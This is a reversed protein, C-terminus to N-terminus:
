PNVLGKELLWNRSIEILKATLEPKRPHMHGEDLNIVTKPHPVLAQFELANAFPIRQDLKGNVVLFEGTLSQIHERPEVPRILSAAIKSTLPNVGPFRDKFNHHILYDYDVGGYCLATARVEVQHEQALHQVAPLALAGLSYGLLIIRNTDAWPQAKIWELAVCVQAPTKNITNRIHQFSTFYAGDEFYNPKFPYQYSILANNGHQPIYSLSKRGAELGGLVIVVPLRNLNISVPLSVTIRTTDRDEAVIDVETYIRSGGHGNVTDSAQHFTSLGSYRQDIETLPDKAVELFYWGALLATLLGVMLVVVAFIKVITRM